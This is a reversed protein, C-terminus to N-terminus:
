GYPNYYEKKDIMEKLMALKEKGNTEDRKFEWYNKDEKGDYELRGETGLHLAGELKTSKINGIRHNHEEENRGYLGLDERYYGYKDLAEKKYSMTGNEAKIKNCDDFKIMKLLWDKPLFMDTGPIVIYKGRALRFGTNYGKAVGTNEKYRVSIDAIDSLDVGDTSGNDIWIIEDIKYGAKKINDRVHETLEKRNYTLLIISVQVM